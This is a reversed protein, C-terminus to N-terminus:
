PLTSTNPLTTVPATAGGPAPITAGTV